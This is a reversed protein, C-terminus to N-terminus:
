LLSVHVKINFNMGFIAQFFFIVARILCAAEGARSLPQIRKGEKGTESFSSM